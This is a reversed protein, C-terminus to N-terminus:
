NTNKEGVAVKIDTGRAIVELILVGWPDKQMSEFLIYTDIDL